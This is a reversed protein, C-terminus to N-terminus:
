RRRRMVAIGAGALGALLLLLGVPALTPIEVVPVAPALGNDSCVNCVGSIPPDTILEWDVIDGTDGGANDSVNLTWTGASSEGNFASLPNVPAGDGAYWPDTAMCWTELDVASDDDFTVDMNNDSCGFTSAPVGPQDLLVVTTGGPSTLSIALDGVWTHAIEVRVNVDSLTVDDAVDLTSDSGVPDNDTISVPVDPVLPLGVLESFSFMFDGENSTVDLDFDIDSLCPVDPTLEVLLETDNFGSAGDALDPWTSNNAILIVGATSSSLVGSIGTFPGNLAQLEIAFRVAEGPEIIGNENAMPDICQDVFDVGALAILPEGAGAIGAGGLQTLGGPATQGIVGVLASAGTAIDCTRLEPQFAGGNFAFLYCTDTANDFDMGQGFNADFGIGGILTAAATGKDISYLSDSVVGYAYYDGAANFGGGIPCTLGAGATGVRTASPTVVDVTYVAGTTGCVAALAYMTGTSKDYDLSTFTEGGTPSLSGITTTTGSGDTAVTFLTGPSDLCYIQTFDEGFFDCGGVFGAPGTGGLNTLVEPTDLEMSALAAFVASEWGFAETGSGGLTRGAVGRLRRVPRDARAAPRRRLAPINFCEAPPKQAVAPMAMLALALAIM